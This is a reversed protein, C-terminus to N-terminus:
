PQVGQLVDAYDHDTQAYAIAAKRIVDQATKLEETAENIRQRISNEGSGKETFKRALNVGMQFGGFGDVREVQKVWNSMDDLHNILVQLGKVAEDLKDRHVRLTLTGQAVEDSLQHLTSLESM